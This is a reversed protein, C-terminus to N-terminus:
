KVILQREAERQRDRAEMCWPAAESDFETMPLLTKQSFHLSKM